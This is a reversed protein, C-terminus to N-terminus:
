QVGLPVVWIPWFIALRKSLEGGPIGLSGYLLTFSLYAAGDFGRLWLQELLGLGAIERKLAEGVGPLAERQEFAGRPTWSVQVMLSM